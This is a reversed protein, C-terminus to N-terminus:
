KFLRQAVHACHFTNVVSLISQNKCRSTMGNRMIWSSTKEQTLNREDTMHNEFVSLVPCTCLSRLVSHPLLFLNKDKKCSQKCANM